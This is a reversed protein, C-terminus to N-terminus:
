SGSVKEMSKEFIGAEDAMGFYWVVWKSGDKVPSDYIFRMGHKLNNVIQLAILEEKTNAELFLKVLFPNTDM